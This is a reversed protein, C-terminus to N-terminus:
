NSGVIIDGDEIKQVMEVLKQIALIGSYQQDDIVLGEFYFGDAILSAYNEEGILAVLVEFTDQDIEVAVAASEDGPSSLTFEWVESVIEQTDNATQIQTSVQWYYKQGIELVQAGSTPYQFSIGTVLYDLNEFELLNATRMDSGPESSRANEILSEANGEGDDKVVIVRYEVTPDGEWSLQPFQNTISVSTGEVDGPAKLFIAREDIVGGTESVGLADTYSALEIKGCANTVQFVKGSVSYIDNPLTTSGGLNEIFDEGILTLGGDFRMVDDVGPLRENQIDNNTAYVVQGPRLSFPYAAQQTLQAILGWQGANVEFEFYLNTLTDESINTLTFTGLLTGAGRSDIGLSALGLVQANRLAPQLEVSFDLKNSGDCSEQAIVNAHLVFVCLCVLFSLFYPKIRVFKKM